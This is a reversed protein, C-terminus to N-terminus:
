ACTGQVPDKLISALPRRQRLIDKKRFFQLIRSLRAQSSMCCIRFPYEFDASQGPIHVTTYTQPAIGQRRVPGLLSLHIFHCVSLDYRDILFVTVAAAIAYGRACFARELDDIALGLQDLFQEAIAEAVADTIAWSASELYLLSFAFFEVFLCGLIMQSLCLAVLGNGSHFIGCLQVFSVVSHM